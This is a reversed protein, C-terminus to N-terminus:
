WNISLSFETVESVLHSQPDEAAVRRKAIPIINDSLHLAFKCDSELRSRKTHYVFILKGITLFPIALVVAAFVVLARVGATYDHTSQSPFPTSTSM